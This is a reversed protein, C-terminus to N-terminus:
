RRRGAVVQRGRASPPRLERAAIWELVSSRRYLVRKGIHTAPPGFRKKRWSKITGPKVKLEAALEEQSLFETLLGNTM